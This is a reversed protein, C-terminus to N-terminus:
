QKKAAPTSYGKWLSHAAVQPLREPDFVADPIDVGYRVESVNIETSTGAQVDNM